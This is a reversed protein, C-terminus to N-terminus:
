QVSSAKMIFKTSDSTSLLKQRLEPNMQKTLIHKTMCFPPLMHNACQVSTSHFDARLHLIKLGQCFGQLIAHVNDNGSLPGKSPEEADPTGRINKLAGYNVIMLLGIQSCTAVEHPEVVPLHIVYMTLRRCSGFAM